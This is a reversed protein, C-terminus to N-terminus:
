ENRVADPTAPNLAKILERIGTYTEQWNVQSPLGQPNLPPLRRIDNLSTLSRAVATAVQEGLNVVSNFRALGDLQLQLLENSGADGVTAELQGAWVGPLLQTPPFAAAQPEIKHGGEGEWRGEASNNNRQKGYVASLAERTRRSAVQVAMLLGLVPLVGFYFSDPDFFLSLPMSLVALLLPLHGGAAAEIEEPTPDRTQEAM